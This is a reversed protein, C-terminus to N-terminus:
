RVGVRRIAVVDAGGVDTACGVVEVGDEVTRGPIGSPWAVSASVLEGDCDGTPTPSAASSAVPM